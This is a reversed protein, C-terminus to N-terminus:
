EDGVFNLISQAVLRALAPSLDVVADVAGGAEIVRLSLSCGGQAVVEVAKGGRLGDLRTSLVLKQPRPPPGVTREVM